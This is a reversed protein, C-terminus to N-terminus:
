LKREAGGTGGAATPHAQDNPAVFSPKRGCCKVAIHFVMPNDTPWEQVAIGGIVALKGGGAEVYKQVAKYLRDVHAPCSAARSDGKRQATRSTKAEAPRKPQRSNTKM